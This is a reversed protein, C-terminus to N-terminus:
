AETVSDSTNVMTKGNADIFAVTEREVLHTAVVKTIKPQGPNRSREILTNVGMSGMWSKHVHITTLGPEVEHSLQIDDFGIVSLDQPIRRGMEQAADMVGIATEDNCAFIATVEPHRKLLKHTAKHGGGRFLISPEVYLSYGKVNMSGVYGLYRDQISPPSDPNWGVLGIHQHGHEFLYDMAKRAGGLNDTVVSDVSKMGSYGDLLVIPINNSRQIRSVTEDLFVGAMVLADIRQDELMIPWSAPRNSRDVEVYSFMVSIKNVHCANTVGMQVKSYFQDITWEEGQDQKLLLGVVSLKNQHALTEADKIPYGLSIAADIVKARTDTSVTPRNNLASSATGISVGALEAVDRLTTSPM